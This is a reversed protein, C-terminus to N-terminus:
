AAFLIFWITYAGQPKLLIFTVSSLMKMVPEDLYMLEQLLSPFWQKRWQYDLCVSFYRSNAQTLCNAVTTGQISQKAVVTQDELSSLARPASYQSPPIHPASPTCPAPLCSILSPQCAHAPLLPCCQFVHTHGTRPPSHMVCFSRFSWTSGFSVQNIKWFASQLQPFYGVGLGCM